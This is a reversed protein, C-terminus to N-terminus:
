GGNEGGVHGGFIWREDFEFAHRLDEQGVFDLGVGEGADVHVDALAFVHGDGARGAAALGRQEGDEPQEVRRGVAAVDEVAAGDLAERQRLALSRLVRTVSASSFTPM